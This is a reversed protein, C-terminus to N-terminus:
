KAWFGRHANSQQQNMNITLEPPDVPTFLSQDTRQLSERNWLPQQDQAIRRTLATVPSDILRGNVYRPEQVQCTTLITTYLMRFFTTSKQSLDLQPFSQFQQTGPYMGFRQFPQQKQSRPILQGFQFQQEIQTPTFTVLQQIQQGSDMETAFYQGVQPNVLDQNAQRQILRLVLLLQIALSMVGNYDPESQQAGQADDMMQIQIYTSKEAFLLLATCM